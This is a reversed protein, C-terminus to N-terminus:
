NTLRWNFSEGCAFYVSWRTALTNHSSGEVKLDYSRGCPIGTLNFSEGPSLVNAGLQDSGWSSSESPSVYLYWISISSQNSVRLSATSSGTGGGTEGGDGGVSGGGGGGGEEGPCGGLLSLGAVMMMVKMMKSM